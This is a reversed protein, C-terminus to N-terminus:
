QMDFYDKFVGTVDTISKTIDEASKARKAQKEAKKEAKEAKKEAKEQKKEAKEQKKANRKRERKEEYSEVVDDIGYAVKMENLAAAEASSYNQYYQVIQQDSAFLLNKFDNSSQRLKAACKLPVGLKNGLVALHQGADLDGEITTARIEDLLGM